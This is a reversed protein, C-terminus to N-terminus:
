KEQGIHKEYCYFALNNGHFYCLGDAKEYGMSLYLKNSVPNGSFADLRINEYGNLRGYNEAFECLWKGLGEGQVVPHVAMRHIILPREDRYHWNIKKYQEDQVEDLTITAVCRNGKKVLFVNGKQIDKFVTQPAPYQYDWQMIGFKRMESTCAIFTEMISPLDEIQAPQIELSKSFTM